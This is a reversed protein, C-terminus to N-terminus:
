TNMLIIERVEVSGGISLIPCDGAIETAEDISNTKIVHFGSLIEMSAVHPGQDVIDGPKVSRGNFGLRSGPSVLKGQAALSGM